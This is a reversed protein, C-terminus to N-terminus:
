KKTGEEQVTAPLYICFITGEGLKSAVTIHGNHKEVISYTTTLGLGSGKQKTTFYPDFILPLHKEAIGVGKDEITIKVYRGAKLPLTTDEAIVENRLITRIMGGLPMAQEANVILNGIAQSIQDRDAQIEWIDDPFDYFCKVDSGRLNIETTEKIIDSISIKNKDPIGGSSFTLLQKTLNKANVTAERAENLINVIEDNDKVKLLALSINGTISKLFKNFDHAIGGALIGLSELKKIKQKEEEIKKQETIDHAFVFIYEKRGFIEFNALIDVPYLSGDKRKYSTEFRTTGKEKLKKVLKIINEKSMEPAIKGWTLDALEEQPYELNEFAAQNAFLIEGSPSILFTPETANDISYRILKLQEETEKRKIVNDITPILVKLYNGETDKIIYDYANEKMCQVAIEENGAGTIIIVPENTNSRLVDLANGDKLEFDQLIVDFSKSELIKKCESISGAIEVEYPLENKDVFRKFAKQDFKNDEVYLIQKKRKDKPKNM